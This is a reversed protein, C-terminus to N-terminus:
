KQRLKLEAKKLQYKELKEKRKLERKSPKV